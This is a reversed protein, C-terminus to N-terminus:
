KVFDTGQYAADQSTKTKLLFAHWGKKMLWCREQPTNVHRHCAKALIVWFFQVVGKWCYGWLKAYCDTKPLPPSHTWNSIQQVAELENNTCNTGIGRKSMIRHTRCQGSGPQYLRLSPIASTVYCGDPLQICWDLFQETVNQSFLSQTACLQKQTSM